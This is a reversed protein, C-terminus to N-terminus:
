PKMEITNIRKCETYRYKEKKTVSKKISTDYNYMNQPYM